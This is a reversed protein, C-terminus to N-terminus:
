CIMPSNPSRWFFKGNGAHRSQLVCPCRRTTTRVTLFLCENAAQTREHANAHARTALEAPDRPTQRAARGELPCARGSCAFGDRSPSAFGRILVVSLRTVSSSIREPVPAEAGLLVM